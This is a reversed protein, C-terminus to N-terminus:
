VVWECVNATSRCNRVRSLVTLEMAADRLWNTETVTVPNAKRNTGRTPKRWLSSLMIDKM